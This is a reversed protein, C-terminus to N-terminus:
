DVARHDRSRTSGIAWELVMFGGLGAPDLLAEAESVRSRMAVAFLDPASAHEHWHARGEDVLEDIGHHQLWVSQCAENSIPRVARLASVDVDATIDKDGPDALPSGAREHGSYTRLWERDTVPYADVAYDIVVVRGTGLSGLARTLWQQAHTAVPVRVERSPLGSKLPERETPVLVEVLAGDGIGVRVESWGEGPVFHCIDFPLNDLLENAFIVGVDVSQPMEAVSTITDPHRARQAASTEAAIYDLAGACEPRARLISRALTGPGAGADVFTFTRPCGLEHWWTDLARAVVAGFLPGTEASTIFDSRRGAGGTAYFGFQPDYLAVEMYRSFSIPGNADIDRRVVDSATM